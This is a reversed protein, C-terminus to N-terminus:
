QDPGHRTLLRCALKEEGYRVAYHDSVEFWGESHNAGHNAGMCSCQCEFGKANMCASACVEKEKYPQIIYIKGYRELIMGVLENFRSSPLEWCKLVRNWEPEKKRPGSKLWSRNDNAYPIKIRIPKTGGRRIVVPIKGNNWITMANRDTEIM